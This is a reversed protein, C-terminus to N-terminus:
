MEVEGESVRLRQEGTVEGKTRPRWDWARWNERAIVAPIWVGEGVESWTYLVLM